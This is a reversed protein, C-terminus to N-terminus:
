FHRVLGIRFVRESTDFDDVGFGYDISNSDYMTQTYDLRATTNKGVAFEIGGGIRVGNLSEDQNVTATLYNYEMDFESRVVGARGYFLISDNLIYGVRFGAGFSSTKEMDYLRGTPSREINWDVSSIEAEAELGAYFAGNQIGYGAFVGGTFGQGGRTVELTSRQTAATPRPGSNDSQLTGHGIQAGAYAGSYDIRQVDAQPTVGGGFNYVLGFRAVSELNAFNDSSSAASPGIGYDDYARLQYEMRASFGDGVPVEAGVGMLLGTERESRKFTPDTGRQYSTDFDASIIGFRGYLLVDGVSRLGATATLSFANGREVSFNRGNVHSWSTDGFEAEIEAGLVLADYVSRYGAFIGLAADRDGFDATLNGGGGRVADVRTQVALDSIQLGTYFGRGSVNARRASDPDFRPELAAGFSLMIRHEDFDAGATDSQRQRFEYSTEMYLREQLYYRLSLGAEALLDTRDLEQYESQTLFSYAALSMDDAVRHQLRLGASTSIYGSAGDLTTEEISRELLGELRTNANLPMSVDAGIDFATTTGFQTDDYDQSMLGFLVEGRMPGLAGSYGLAAQFGKSSRRYGENDIKQDYDRQDYIGQVFVEGNDTSSVGVRGGLEIEQRDRDDNDIVGSAAPTDDFDLDRMNLGLRFSREDWSGGFGVYGGLDTFDTPELGNVDDPSERGEHDLSYELGGFSFTNENIRYLGEAGLFFDEYNEDSYDAFRAIDASADLQLRFDEARYTLQAWPSIVLAYDSRRDNATLFVNDTYEVSTSIGADFEYPSPAPTGSAVNETAQDQAAVGNILNVSFLGITGVLFYAKRKVFM